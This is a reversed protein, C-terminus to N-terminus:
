KRALMTRLLQRILQATALDGAELVDEIFGHIDRRLKSKEQLAYPQSARYRRQREAVTMARKGIPPRGM